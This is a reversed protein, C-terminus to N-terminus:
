LNFIQLSSLQYKATSVSLMKQPMHVSHKLVTLNIVPKLINVQTTINRCEFGHLKHQPAHTNTRSEPKHERTVIQGM